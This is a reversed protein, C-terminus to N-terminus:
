EKIPLKKEPNTIYSNLLSKNVIVWMSSRLLYFLYVKDLNQVDSGSIHKDLFAKIDDDNYNLRKLLSECKTHIENLAYHSPEVHTDSLIGEINMDHKVSGNHLEVIKRIIGKNCGLMKFPSFIQPKLEDWNNIGIPRKVATM